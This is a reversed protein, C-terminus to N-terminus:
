FSVKGNEYTVFIEGSQDCVLFTYKKTLIIDEFTYILWIKNDDPTSLSIQKSNEICLISDQVRCSLRLVGGGSACFVHSILLPTHTKDILFLFRLAHSSSAQAANNQVGVFVGQIGIPLEIPPPFVSTEAETEQTFTEPSSSEFAIYTSFVDITHTFIQNEFTIYTMEGGLICLNQPTTTNNKSLTIECITGNKQIAHPTPSDLLVGIITHGQSQFIQHSVHFSATNPHLQLKQIELVGVDVWFILGYFNEAPPNKLVISFTIDNQSERIDEIVVCPSSDSIGHASLSFLTICLCFFLIIGGGLICMKVQMNKM